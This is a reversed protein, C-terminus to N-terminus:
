DEFILKNVVSYKVVCDKQLITTIKDKIDKSMANFDAQRINSKGDLEVIIKGSKTKINASNLLSGYIYMIDEKIINEESKASVAIPDALSLSLFVCVFSCLILLKKM